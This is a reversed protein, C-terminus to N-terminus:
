ITIFIRGAGKCTVCQYPGGEPEPHFQTWDGTGGCELCTVEGAGAGRDVPTVEVETERLHGLYVVMM